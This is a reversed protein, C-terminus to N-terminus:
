PTIVLKGVVRRGALRALVEAGEDLGFRGTITPTVRGHQWWDTLTAFHSRNADPAQEAFRGWFVGVLSAGKLLALNAPISPIAGAAFGIVLLRGGWALSRFATETADGGVPDFVVDVGDPAMARLAARLDDRDHRVVADAGAAAAAEEKEDSGVVAVVRAGLAKGVQVAALGVGGAGGLVVLTEGPTVGARDVLAHIATGYVVPLVAGVEFPMGPPMPFVNAADAVVREAWGGHPVFAMVREGAAFGDGSAVTGAVELGPAFPPEPRFQYQGRVMLVDPFNAGSAAVVIEVQGPGAVAEPLEGARVVPPDGVHDCVVARM